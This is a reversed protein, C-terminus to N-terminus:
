IQTGGQNDQGRWNNIHNLFFSTFIGLIVGFVLGLIVILKRKPKSYIEPSVAPDIVKLVYEDNVKALTIIKTHEEIIRYMVNQLESLSTQSIQETLYAISREAENITNQRLEDNLRKVLANAWDASQQPNKWEISVTVLLTKKNQSVNLMDTGFKNYVEGGSPEVSVLGSPLRKETQTIISSKIKSYLSPEGIIWQNKKDDWQNEFLIPKLNLDSIFRTIFKRSKLTAITTEIGGGGGVSIGALSALGGFQSAFAGIGSNNGGEKGAPALLVEARYVPTISFAYVVSVVVCVFVVAAILRKFNVLVRWLDLLNIEDEPESTPMPVFYGQPVQSPGPISGPTPQTPEPKNSQNTMSEYNTFLTALL